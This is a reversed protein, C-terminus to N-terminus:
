EGRSITENIIQEPIIVGGLRKEMERQGDIWPGLLDVIVDEVQKNRRSGSIIRNLSNVKIELGTRENVYDLLSDSSISNATMAARIERAEFHM